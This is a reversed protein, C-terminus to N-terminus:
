KFPNGKLSASPSSPGDIKSHSSQRCDLEIFSHEMDLRREPDHIDPYPQGVQRPVPDFRDPNYRIHANGAVSKGIGAKDVHLRRFANRYLM